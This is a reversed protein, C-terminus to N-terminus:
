KPHDLLANLGDHKVDVSADEIAAMVDAPLESPHYARRSANLIRQLRDFDDPSVFYGTTKGHSQVEIPERQVRRQYEGFNRCFDTAAIATTM